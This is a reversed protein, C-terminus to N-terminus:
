TLHTVQTPCPAFTTTDSFIWLQELLTPPHEMKCLPGHFHTLGFSHGERFRTLIDRYVHRNIGHGDPVFERYIVGNRDFFIVLMCKPISIKCRVKAPRTEGPQLWVRSREKSEPDWTHFWSEDQAVIRQLGPCRRTMRMMGLAAQAM